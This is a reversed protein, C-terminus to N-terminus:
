KKKKKKKTKESQKKNKKLDLKQKEFQAKKLEYREEALEEKQKELTKKKEAEKKLEELVPKPTRVVYYYYNKKLSDWVINEKLYVKVKNKESQDINSKQFQTAMLISDKLLERNEFVIPLIHRPQNYLTVMLILYHGKLKQTDLKERQPIYVLATSGVPANYIDPVIKVDPAQAKARETFIFSLSAILSLFLIKKM